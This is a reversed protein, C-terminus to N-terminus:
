IAFEIELEEVARIVLYYHGVEHNLQSFLQVTLGKVPSFGMDQDEIIACKM